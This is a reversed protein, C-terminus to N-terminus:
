IPLDKSSIIKSLSTNPCAIPITILKGNYEKIIRGCEEECYDDDTIIIALEPNNKVIDKVVAIYNTGGSSKPEKYFLNDHFYIVDREIKSRYKQLIRKLTETAKETKEPSFSGSRDVYIIVKPTTIQSATGKKLFDGEDRRNPRKFSKKRLIAARGLVIDIESGLTPRPAFNKFSNEIEKFEKQKRQQEIESKLNKAEKEVEEKAADIIEKLEEKTLEKSSEPSNDQDYQNSESDHSQNELPKNKLAYYFDEAYVCQPYEECHKKCIGGNLLSRPKNIIKDDYDDYIHLAIELDAAAGWRTRDFNVGEKKSLNLFRELHQLWIHSCEHRFLLELEQTDNIALSVFASVFDTYGISPKLGIFRELKITM